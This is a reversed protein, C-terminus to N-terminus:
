STGPEVASIRTDFEREYREGTAISLATEALQAVIEPTIPSEAGVIAIEPLDSECVAPLMRLLWSLGSGHAYGAPREEMGACSDLVVPCGPPAFGLLSDVFVVCGAGEVYRLLDLGGLGGDILSVNEPMTRQALFDYVRPGITDSEVLRNGVCIIRSKKERRM